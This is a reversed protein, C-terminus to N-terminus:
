SYCGIIVYFVIKVEKRENDDIMASYLVNAEILGAVSAKIEARESEYCCVGSHYEIAGKHRQEYQLANYM